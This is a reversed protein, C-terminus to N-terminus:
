NNRGAENWAGGRYEKLRLTFHDQWIRWKPHNPELMIERVVAHRLRPEEGSVLENFDKTDEILPSLVFGTKMMSPVVRYNRMTGDSLKLLLRIQTPKFAADVIKGFLTQRLDIEAFMPGEVPPLAIREGTRYVGEQLVVFSSQFEITKKRDLHTFEDDTAGVTYNDLLAAWSAGDELSPLHEDSPRIQFLVHDPAKDTRLHREDALLLEPTLAAYSQLVPRPNWPVNWALLDANDTPYIDFTGSAQPVTYEARIKALEEDYERSLGGRDSLRIRLGNLLPVYVGSVLDSGYHSVPEPATKTGRDQQPVPTYRVRMGYRLSLAAYLLVSLSLLIKVDRDWRGFGVLLVAFLLCNAAVLSHEDHRVFGSKFGAFLFLLFCVFLFARSAKAMNPSAAVIRMEAFCLLLFVVIEGANRVMLNPRFNEQAAMGQTYGSLMLFSSSFYEPLGGLPQGAAIWFLLMSIIPTVVAVSALTVHRHYLLWAVILIQMAACLVIMNEKALPLLGVPICLAVAYALELISPHRGTRPAMCFQATCLALLLMYSFFLADRSNLFWGLFVFFFLVATRNAHKALYLVAGLYGLAVILGSFIILRDLAPHYIGTMLAAYPGYTFIIDHGIKMRDAVAANMSLKWPDMGMVPLTPRLPVILAIITIAAFVPFWFKLLLQYLTTRRLELWDGGM